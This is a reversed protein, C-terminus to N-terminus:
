MRMRSTIAKNLVQPLPLTELPTVLSGGDMLVLTAPKANFTWFLLSALSVLFSSQCVRTSIFIYLQDFKNNQKPRVAIHKNKPSTFIHMTIIKQVLYIALAMKGLWEVDRSCSKM